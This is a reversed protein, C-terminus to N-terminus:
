VSRVLESMRTGCYLVDKWTRSDLRISVIEIENFDGEEPALSSISFPPSPRSSDALPEETIGFPVVSLVVVGGSGLWAVSAGGLVTDAATYRSGQDNIMSRKVAQAESTEQISVVIIAGGSGVTTPTERM